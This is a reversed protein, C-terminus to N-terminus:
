HTSINFDVTILTETEVPQGNQLYPQFSRHRAAEIAAAILDAPGRVVALERIRGQRDIVARLVVSGQLSGERSLVTPPRRAMGETAEPDVRVRQQRGGQLNLNVTRDTYRPELRRESDVVEVDFPKPPSPTPAFRPDPQIAPAEAGPAGPTARATSASRPRRKSGKSDSSVSEQASEPVIVPSQGGSGLSGMAAEVEIMFDSITATPLVFAETTWVLALLVVLLLLSILPLFSPRRRPSEAQERGATLERLRRIEGEDSGAVSGYGGPDPGRRTYSEDNPM